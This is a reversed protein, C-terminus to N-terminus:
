ANQRDSLGACRDPVPHAPNGGWWAHDPVEEGKMLFSDPALVAGDGMTVGYHVFAGVGLTCGAGVTSYDSKFTGDEQSHCQVVTGANLTCDDGISVLTRDPFSCGDDFVRKGIRVGLLRWVVSKFPTGDLMQIYHVSSMKWYREHRWFSPEYISCYLRELPRFARGAREVLVFFVVTFVLVLFSAAVIALAGPSDHLAAAGMVVVTSVCVHIWRALLYLVATVANHKNKAALRRHLEEGSALHNFRNDREVTRPIEFSPSGLLGVNERLPGEVPVMAKTAILCNDGTRSRSPYVIRNGLFNRPGIAARSLRFATSSFDANVISLGDAVMTGTGVSSLYPNEHKVETGFNSGTQEVRCLDYGLRRLYHVIASSDGFLSTFFRRNTLLAIARQASHHFGYLPYVRGPEVFRNFLRPVTTVVLLGALLAGFFLLSSGALADRLFSWGSVAWRGPNLLENLRPVATVLLTSGGITLPLYVALLVAVQLTGYVARRITTCGPHGPAGYDVDTHQAPSGHRHEGEPVAQGRHLSSAHGLQARDGMSTDIDLVTQESVLVDSGLSVRGTEIRGGHARYCSFYSDKRIVTRDGITLLDTCVPLHKSLVVAGRGVKAGLSRLYLVYVPSGTFLRAPSTRILVKVTWFRLYGLSWVPISRPTFRGILVWKALVPLACLGVFAASCVLVSRVYADLVGAGSAIWGYGRVAALAALFSFGLFLLLQLTGCLLYQGTSAPTAPAGTAHGTPEDSPVRVAPSQPEPPTPAAGALAKALSRVTPYQYVDKMSVTPLDARKRVRACFRAMVLSDAGLDHFFHSEASVQDVSVVGALLEAFDREAGSEPASPPRAM